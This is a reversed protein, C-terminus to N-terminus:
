SFNTRTRISSVRNLLPWIWILLGVAVLVIILLLSLSVRCGFYDENGLNTLAAFFHLVFIIGYLPTSKTRSAVFAFCMLAIDLIFFGLSTLSVTLALPIYPCSDSFYDGKGDTSALISGCVVLSHMLGYGLGAAISSTKDNLPLVDDAVDSSQKILFETKKYGYILLFRFCNQLISSIFLLGIRDGSSSNGDSTIVAWLVSIVFMCILWAFASALSIIALQPTKTIHYLMFAAPSYAILICGIHLLPM